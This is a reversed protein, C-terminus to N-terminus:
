RIEAEHKKYVHKKYFHFRINRNHNPFYHWSINQDEYRRSVAFGNEANTVPYIHYEFKQTYM